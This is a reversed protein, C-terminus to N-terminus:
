ALVYNARKIKLLFRFVSNYHTLITDHDLIIELPWESQYFISVHDLASLSTAPALLEKSFDGPFIIQMREIVSPTKDFLSKFADQFTGNLM